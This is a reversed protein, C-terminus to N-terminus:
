SKLGKKCWRSLHPLTTIQRLPRRRDAPLHVQAKKLLTALAPLPDNIRMAAMTTALLELEDSTWSVRVKEM